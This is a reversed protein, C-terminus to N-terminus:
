DCGTAVDMGEEVMGRTWMWVGKPWAGQVVGRVRAEHGCGCGMNVACGKEVGGKTM